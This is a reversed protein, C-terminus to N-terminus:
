QQQSLKEKLKRRDVKLSENRPFKKVVVIDKPRWHRPLFNEMDSILIPLSDPVQEQEFVLILKQGLKKDPVGTAICKLLTRANILAEVEEPVIKIGGSNILNDYRGLWRFTNHGTFEVMDNTVVPAPLYSANVVLCGRADSSLNIEPLATYYYEADNGNLKRLAVHSSTEAMGYTAYVDTALPLILNELERSIEAGGILLKKLPLHNNCLLLNNIQLPVMACFDYNRSGNLEPMSRPETYFLNLDGMFCRVIMMKGAIYDVPMCLLASDGKKLDLFRYTGLASHIMAEKPLRIEKPKGTTGSSHQIIYDSDSLWNIIFRYIEKEWPNINVSVIIDSSVTLLEKDTFKRGNLSLGRQWLNM